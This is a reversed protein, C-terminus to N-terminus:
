DLTLDIKDVVSKYQEYLAQTEPDHNLADSFRRDLLKAGKPNDNLPFQKELAHRAEHMCHVEDLSNPVYSPNAHMFSLAGYTLERPSCQCKSLDVDGKFVQDFVSRKVSPDYLRASNPPNYFKYYNDTLSSGWFAFETKKFSSNM